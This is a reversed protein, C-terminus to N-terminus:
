VLSGQRIEAMLQLKIYNMGVILLTDSDQIGNMSIVSNLRIDIPQLQSEIKLSTAVNMKRGVIKNTINLLDSLSTNNQSCIVRIESPNKSGLVASIIQNAADKVFIYNRITNLPVYIETVRKLLSNQILTTILGQKKYRKQYPCYLNAIRGIVIKISNEIGFQICLKEIAIKQKGYASLPNPLTFEDFPPNISGAYVGGASSAFFLTGRGKGSINSQKILRLLEGVAHVEISLQSESSSVVGIGACWYITWDSEGIQQAFETVAAKISSQMGELSEKNQETAWQIKTTPQWTQSEKFLRDNIASGLLGGSGIVWNIM